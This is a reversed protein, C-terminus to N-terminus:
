RISMGVHMRFQVAEAESIRRAHESSQLNYHEEGSSPNRQPKVTGSHQHRSGGMAASSSTLSSHENLVSICAYFICQGTQRHRRSGSLPSRRILTKFLPAGKKSADNNNESVKEDRCRGKEDEDEDEDCQMGGMMEMKWRTCGDGEWGILRRTGKCVAYLLIM